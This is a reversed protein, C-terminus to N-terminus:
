PSLGLRHSHVCTLVPRSMPVLVHDVPEENYSDDPEYCHDCEDTRCSISTITSLDEQHLDADAHGHLYASLPSTLQLVGDENITATSPPQITQVPTLADLLKHHKHTVADMQSKMAQLVKISDM